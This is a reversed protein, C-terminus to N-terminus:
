PGNTLWKATFRALRLRDYPSREGCEYLCLVDGGPLEALASYAAPGAHLVKAHPWTQGEDESLRVTLSERKKSAPNAFVLRGDNLRILSAQCVPEVLAPDLTVESWTVGGDASTAVARRNKGHYSRMNLLQSGDRREVVQCENTGDGLSGGRQWTAGRDDSYIVHSRMVRTGLVTHDCPVVLRGTRTQIGCGPGTAYWTWDAAKVSATVDAPKAWTAGEDASHTMWVARGGKSTGDRIVKENENGLNRTLPLWVVGTARDQVPCPNGVTNLGDDAVLQTPQWTRGGDLSRKLLLDIDGADGRGKKRGECFALVTGKATVLLSPIRYTHYDDRGATFLDTVQPGDGRSVGGLLAAGAAALFGRRHLTTM